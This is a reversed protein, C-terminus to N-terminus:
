IEIKLQTGGITIIDGTMVVAAEALRQNNLLTGNRSGLDEVWWRQGRLSILAHEASAYDDELVITNSPARGIGTIPLLDLQTGIPLKENQSMIVALKGRPKSQAGMAAAAFEMDRYLFWGLGFLFSLLLLASLLRLIFLITTLTM